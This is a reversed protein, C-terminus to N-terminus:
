ERHETDLTSPSLKQFVMLLPPTSRSSQMTQYFAQSSTNKELPLEIHWQLSGLLCMLGGTSVLPCRSWFLQINENHSIGNHMPQVPVHHSRRTGLAGLIIVRKNLENLRMQIWETKLLHKGADQQTSQEENTEGTTRSEPGRLNSQTHVTECQVKATFSVSM